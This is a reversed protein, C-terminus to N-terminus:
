FEQSHDEASCVFAQFRLKRGENGAGYFSAGGYTLAAYNDPNSYLEVFKLHQRVAFNEKNLEQVKRVMDDVLEKRFAILGPTQYAIDQLKFAIQAKLSFIAGSLAIQIASEGKGGMRFFEFNGCFDFIYFKDKDAGDQLGPCLRTGRGIMQWFKAKSMVKKFFVLNLCEPVDIGTDLMDVSIAIQPLKKPDSFEDILSQAYGIKNDIVKAFGPLHPYEKNFV